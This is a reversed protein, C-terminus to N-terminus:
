SAPLLGSRWRNSTGGAGWSHALCEEEEDEDEEMREWSNCHRAKSGVNRVLPDGTCYRAMRSGRGNCFQELRTKEVGVIRGLTNPLGKLLNGRGKHIVTERPSEHHRTPAGNYM